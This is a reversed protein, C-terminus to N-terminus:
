MEHSDGQAPMSAAGSIRPRSAGRRSDAGPASEQRGARPDSM